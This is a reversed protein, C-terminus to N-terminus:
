NVFVLIGPLERLEIQRRCTGVANHATLSSPSEVYLVRSLESPIHSAIQGSSPNRKAYFRDMVGWEFHYLRRDVMLTTLPNWPCYTSGPHARVYEYLMAQKSQSPRALYPWLRSADSFLDNTCIVLTLVALMAFLSRELLAATISAREYATTLAGCAALILLFHSCALTNLFGGVKAYPIISSPILCIATLVLLSWPTLTLLERLNRRAGVPMCAAIAVGLFCLGLARSSVRVLDLAANWWALLYSTQGDRLPHQGPMWIMHFYLKSPGFFWLFPVSILTAAAVFLGVFIAARKAGDVISTYAILAIPLTLYSQKTWCCLVACTAALAMNTTSRSRYIAAVSCAALGLGPGDAGAITVCRTLGEDSFTYWFLFLMLLLLWRTNVGQCIRSLLWLSPVFFCLLNIAVGIAMVGTPTQGLAAPLLLLAAVPGYIWGTMVGTDPDQYLDYGRTMAVVPALKAENWEFMPAAAIRELLMILACSALLPAMSLLARHLGNEDATRIFQWITGALGGSLILVVLIAAM